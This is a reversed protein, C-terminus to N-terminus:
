GSSVSLPLTPDLFHAHLLVKDRKINGQLTIEESSIPKYLPAATPYHQVQFIEGLSGTNRASVRVVNAEQGRWITTARAAELSQQRSRDVKCVNAM